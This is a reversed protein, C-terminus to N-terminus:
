PARRQICLSLLAERFIAAKPPKHDFIDFAHALEQQGNGLLVRKHLMCQQSLSDIVRMMSCVNQIALDGCIGVIAVVCRM